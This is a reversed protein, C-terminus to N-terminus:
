KRYFAMMNGFAAFNNLYFSGHIIFIWPIPFSYSVVLFQFDAFFIFYNCLPTATTCEQMGKLKNM